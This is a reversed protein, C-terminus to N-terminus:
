KKWTPLPLFITILYPFHSMLIRRYNPRNFVHMKEVDNYSIHSPLWPSPAPTQRLAHIHTNMYPCIFSHLNLSQSSLCLLTLNPFIPFRKLVSYILIYAARCLVCLLGKCLSTLDVPWCTLKQGVMPRNLSLFSILVHLKVFSSLPM